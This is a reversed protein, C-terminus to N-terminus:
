VQDEDSGMIMSRLYKKIEEDEEIGAHEIGKASMEAMVMKAPVSYYGHTEYFLLEGGNKPFTYHGLNPTDDYFKDYTGKLADKLHFYFQEDDENFADMTPKLAKEADIIWEHPKNKYKEALIEFGERVKMPGMGIALGIDTRIVNADEFSDRIMKSTIFSFDGAPFFFTVEGFVKALPISNTVFVSRTRIDQVDFALEAGANFMFNFTAANASDRPKRNVPHPSYFATMPDFKDVGGEAKVMYPSYGRYLMRGHKLFPKCNSRIQQVVSELSTIQREFLFEKFRM